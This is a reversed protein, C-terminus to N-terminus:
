RPGISPDILDLSVFNIREDNMLTEMLESLESFSAAQFSAARVSPFDRILELGYDRAIAETDTGEVYEILMSGDSVKFSDTDPEQVLKYVPRESMSHTMYFSSLAGPTLEYKFNGLRYIDPFLPILNNEDLVVVSQLLVTPMQRVTEEVVPNSNNATSVFPEQALLYEQSFLILSLLLSFPLRWSTLKVIM